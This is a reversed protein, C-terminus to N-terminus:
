TVLLLVKKEPVMRVNALSPLQILYDKLEWFYLTIVTCYM